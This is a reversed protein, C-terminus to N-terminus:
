RSIVGAHLDDITRMADGATVPHTHIAVWGVGAAELQDLRARLDAISDDPRLHIVYSVEIPDTRGAEDAYERLTTLLSRLDDAGELPATRRSVKRDRPNTLAMWGKGTTVVRRLTLRSNGGIWLPPHPEQVPRPLATVNVASFSSGAYNVPKGTWALKMVEVCEDFLKNRDEFAIGLARFEEPLYGTVMGLDVRGRSLVDLTAVSKALLFPNRIPVLTAYIFLRLTTTPGAVAALAVFPDVSDHGDGGQRWYEPPIPHEDFSGGAFGAQEAAVALRGLVDASLLAPDPPVTGGPFRYILRM